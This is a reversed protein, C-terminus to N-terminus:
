MDERTNVVEPACELEMREAVQNRKNPLPADTEMSQRQRRGGDRRAAARSDGRRSLERTARPARLAAALATPNLFKMLSLPFLSRNPELFEV